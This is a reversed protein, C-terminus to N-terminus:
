TTENSILRTVHRLEGFRLRWHRIECQIGSMEFNRSPHLSILSITPNMNDWKFDTTKSTQNQWIPTELTQNWLPHIDSMDSKTTASDCTQITQNRFFQFFILFLGVLGITYLHICFIVANPNQFPFMFYLKWSQWTLRIQIIIQIGSYGYHFVIAM